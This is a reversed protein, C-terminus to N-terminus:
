AIPEGTRPVLSAEVDANELMERMVEAEVATEFAGGYVRYRPQGPDYRVPVVYAPIEAEALEEVREAAEPRTDYEGLLFAFETPRVAWTDFATKHGADVLRQLLATGAERDAVPGALLRYYLGGSVAVPALYFEINPEARRLDAIRQRASTLDQHAEVAVSIPIPVEVAQGRQTPPTPQPAPDAGAVAEDPRPAWYEQYLFWGGVGLAVAMAVLFGLRVPTARLSSENRFVVPESIAADVPATAAADEAAEPVGTAEPTVTGVVQCDRDLRGGIRGEDREDGVLVARQVRRSLAGLGPTGALVFLMLLSGDAELEAGIRNWRSSDMVGAPDPVFAGAPIFDFDHGEPRTAVRTLSAGFLFVDALGELNEIGLGRHMRPSTVAADALVTHLGHAARADALAIAAQIAADDSDAAVILLIPQDPEMIAAGVGPPIEGQGPEPRDPPTTPNPSM